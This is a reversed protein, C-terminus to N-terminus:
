IRLTRADEIIKKADENSGENAYHVSLARKINLIKQFLPAGVSNLKKDIKM